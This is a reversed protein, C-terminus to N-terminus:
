AKFFKSTENAVTKLRPDRKMQEVAGVDIAHKVTAHNRGGFVKGLATLGAIQDGLIARCVAMAVQRPAAWARVTRASALEDRTVSWAHEAMKAVFVDVVQDITPATKGNWKSRRRPREERAMGMARKIAAEPIGADRAAKLLARRDKRILDADDPQAAM